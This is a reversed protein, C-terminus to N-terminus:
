DFTLSDLLTQSPTFVPLPHAETNFVFDTLPVVSTDSFLLFLYKLTEALFFTEMKDTWGKEGEARDVNRISSYGGSPVKCHKEIAQFIRWGYLRYIPDGTLRFALFLSEVTEPRLIYRADLHPFDSNGGKIYWERGTKKVDGYKTDYFMAIEPSLGTETRHTDVCTDILEIGSNWDRADHQRPLKKTNPPISERAETAGLLLSGGLFCVLHDQKPTVRWKGELLWDESYGIPQLEATYLLKHIPTRKLLHQHISDMSADYMKRYVLETRNTQLYQKLLYEYYSDGRSGLRIDSLQFQGTRPSIFIPVLAPGKPPLANKVARMAKTVAVWYKPDGTLYSLYKFELQLTTAEATSAAGSNAMDGRGEKAHLNSDSLPIGTPTDFSPLIRDGLDQALRLYPSSQPSLKSLHHASLLGGLVRITTEFTNVEGASSFDLSTELWHQSRNYMEALESDNHKSAKMLMLTDLADAIM